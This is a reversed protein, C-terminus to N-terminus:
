FIFPLIYRSTVVTLFVPLPTVEKDFESKFKRVTDMDTESLGDPGHPHSHWEGIYGLQNGSKEHIFQIKEPLGLHGRFFCVANSKSDPPADILDTVHITKTKYNVVGIFVGGTEKKGASNKQIIIREIIGAKYRITWTSDNVPTMVTFPEVDIVETEISYNHNDVIRNLFIKGKQSKNKMQRKIVASFYAAHSSIADDALITTESNCGVGVNVNFSSSNANEDERKLWERIKPKEDYLNYLYIQLDDIRPNRDAGEIVMIGLNGLDSINARCIKKATLSSENILTNFVNESTTFDFVWKWPKSFEANTLILGSIEFASIETKQDPFIRELSKVIATAKNLGVQDGLLAHRTMNHPSIVDPDSLVLQQQGSRALHMVIKSGLAGCGLILSLENTPRVGSILKAMKHTLPQNHSCFKLLVNDDIKGEVKDKSDIIMIHNSFEITGDFGIVKYPRRIAVIVPIGKFYNVNYLTEIRELETLDIGYSSCYSKLNKFDKPMEILYEKCITDDSSWVIYGVHYHDTKLEEVEKKFAAQIEKNSDYINELTIQKVFQFTGNEIRRFIAIATNGSEFFSKKNNVINAISDYDYIFTRYYGELRMPDFQASDTSLTGLAADRLWNKTRIVLDTARKTAYWDDINGRVLCFAPPRDNNAIYLHALQDKPFSIRDTYVRPAVSPYSKVDFVLLVPEVPRIDIGEFNGLSPLDVNIEVALAVMGDAWDFLKSVDLRLTDYLLSLSDQLAPNEINGGFPTLSRSFQEQEM